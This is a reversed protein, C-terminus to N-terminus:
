TVNPCPQRLPDHSEEDVAVIMAAIVVDANHNWCTDRVRKAGFSPFVHHHNIPCASSEMGFEFSADCAVYLVGLQRLGPLSKELSSTPDACQASRVDSRPTGGMIFRLKSGATKSIISRGCGTEGS